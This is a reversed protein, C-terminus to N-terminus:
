DKATITVTVDRNIWEVDPNKSVTVTPKKKDINNVQITKMTSEGNINYARFAYIGNNYVTYSANTSFVKTGNPLVIYDVGDEDFANAIIDVSDNTIITSSLSLNLDPGITDIHKVPLNVVIQNNSNNADEADNLTARVEVNKIGLKRPVKFLVEKTRGTGAKLVENKFSGSLVNEKNSEYIADVTYDISSINEDHNLIDLEGNKNLRAIFADRGGNNLGNFIHSNSTTEGSVIFSGDPLEMGCQTADDASGSISGMWQINASRDMKIWFADNGGKHSFSSFSGDTSATDGSILYGGDSTKQLYRFNDYKSGGIIRAELFNGDATMKGIYGDQLGKAQGAFQHSNSETRGILFLSGDENEVVQRVDDYGTGGVQSFWEVSGDSGRLKIVYGDGFDSGIIPYPSFFGDAKIYRGVGFIDGNKAVTLSYASSTGSSPLETRWVLNLNSDYKLYVANSGSTNVIHQELAVFINGNDDKDMFLVRDTNGTTPFTFKQIYNGNKDFEVIIADQDRTNTGAMDKDNSTSFGGILLNGNPREVAHFFFDNKSGGFTKKWKVDGKYNYRVAIADQGGLSIGSLHKDTSETRGVALFGGDSLLIHKEFHENKSGGFTKIFPKPNQNFIDFNFKYEKNVELQSQAVNTSNVIKGNSMVYDTLESSKTSTTNVPILSSAIIGGLIFNRMTNM